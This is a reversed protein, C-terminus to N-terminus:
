NNGYVEGTSTVIIWKGDRQEISALRSNDPLVSGVRVVYMGTDDEILARGYQRAGAPDEAFAVPRPAQPRRPRPADRVVPAPPPWDAPSAEVAPVPGPAPAVEGAPVAGGANLRRGLELYLVLDAIARDIAERQRRLAALRAEAEAESLSMGDVGNWERFLIHFSLPSLM